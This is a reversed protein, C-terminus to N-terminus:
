LSTSIARSLTTNVLAVDFQVARQASAQGLRMTLADDTLLHELAAAMELPASPSVLIGNVRDEVLTRIGPLNTGILPRGLALYEIGTVPQVALMERSLPFPLVGVRAAGMQRLAERSPLVGLYEVMGPAEADFSSLWDRDADQLHGVLRITSRIGRARLLLGAELLTDVGRLPSIFGVFIITSSLEPATPTGQKRVSGIDVAQNLALITNSMVGYNERLITPLPDDVSCGITCVLDARSLLMRILRDRALMLLMRLRRRRRRANALEMAPDDVADIIWRSGFSQFALGGVASTDQFSYVLSYRTGRLLQILSWIFVVLTFAAPKLLRHSIRDLFPFSVIQIHPLVDAPFSHPYCSVVDVAGLVSLARLRQNVTM